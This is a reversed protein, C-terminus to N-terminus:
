REAHAQRLSHLRAPRTTPAPLIWPAPGIGDDIAALNVTRDIMPQGMRGNLSVRAEARVEVEGYGRRRYDDAIHHALQLILDPQSSMEREQLDTLYRRPSVIQRRGDPLTVYYTVAGNKERVLVKWSWRMGQEGWLVDGDYLWHRLPMALQIFAYVALAAALARARGASPVAQPPAPAPDGGFLRRPWSPSFFVTACSVMIFPFMGIDFLIGVATHFAVVAAFAFARTRRWSLWAWITTDYVFGAWSMFLAVEPEGLWPGVIPLHTRASLWISLPQADLLWDSGLKALGAYLYVVAIQFRLLWLCWQPFSALRREPRRWVDVAYARGLPMWSVLFLLLSVLYYHNLYYTVDMLELYTFGIFALAASVRFFVGAAICLGLVALASFHLYMGWAPWVEVWGFGWYKFAFTPEVFFQEVWGNLMFRTSGVFLLLGLLVRLAVLSAVDVPAHLRELWGTRSASM